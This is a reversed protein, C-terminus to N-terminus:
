HIRGGPHSGKAMMFAMGLSLLSFLLLAGIFLWSRPNGFNLTWGVGFRKEVFLASDNRNFYFMGLKWCEDPTRDGVPPVHGPVTQEAPGLRWGGQGTQWSLLIIALVLLTQGLLVPWFLPLPAKLNTRLLALSLVSFLLAIWYESGLMFFSIARIFRAQRLTQEGSSYIRRTGKMIALCLGMMFLCLLLGTVPLGFIAALNKATWGDPMGRMNWHIPIQAPIRDWNLWLCVSAAGLILFPGVQALWGGPLSVQRSQLNAERITVPEVHHPMARHRAILFAGFWGTIEIFIPGLQGILMQPLPLFNVLVIFLLTILSVIAVLSYYGRLIGRGAPTQRFSPSVTVAFFLDPRTLRPTMLMVTTLTAWPLLTMLVLPWEINTLQM